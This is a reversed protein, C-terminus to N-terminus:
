LVTIVKNHNVSGQADEMQVYSEYGDKQANVKIEAKQCYSGLAGMEKVLAKVKSAEAYRGQTAKHKDQANYVAALCLKLDSETAWSTNMSLLLVYALM